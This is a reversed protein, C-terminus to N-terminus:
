QLHPHTWKCGIRNFQETVNQSLRFLSYEGNTRSLQVFHFEQLTTNHFPLHTGWERAKYKETKAYHPLNGHHSDGCTVKYSHTLAQVATLPGTEGSIAWAHSQEPLWAQHNVSNTVTKQKDLGKLCDILLFPPFLLFSSFLM